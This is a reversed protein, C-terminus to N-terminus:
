NGAITQTDTFNYTPDIALIKDQYKRIRRVKEGEKM